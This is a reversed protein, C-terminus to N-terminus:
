LWLAHCALWLVGVASALSVVAAAGLFLCKHIRSRQRTCSADNGHANIQSTTTTEQPPLTMCISQEETPVAPVSIEPPPPLHARRRVVPAATPASGLTHNNSTDPSSM